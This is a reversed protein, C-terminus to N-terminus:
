PRNVAAVAQAAIGEGRGTFGLGETTTGKINVFAPSIGLREAILRTMEPVYPAIKPRECIVVADVNVAQWGHQVLLKGVRELLVLSSIDKYEAETDPFHRGIDGLGAAGLLADMIAHILVDADSHGLLGKEFPIEVGGLFLRRGEALRHVDFGIGTRMRGGGLRASAIVTDSPTTIKVNEYSGRVITVRGGIREVLAADDTAYVGDSYAQEYAKRILSTNFTQPTQVAYLNARDITREVTGEPSASKITDVVPVAAICAGTRQAEEVCARILEPTVFPRAADHISVISGTIHELGNRVSDQRHTGGPAIRSVKAFGFRGVIRGAAEIDDRGTVIVIEDIADCSEFVALTHALLPKGAVEWLVKNIGSGFREGRGAAAILASAKTM